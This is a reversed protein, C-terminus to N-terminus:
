FGQTYLIRFNANFDTGGKATLHMAVYLPVHPDTTWASGGGNDTPIRWLEKLSDGTADKPFVETFSTRNTLSLAATLDSGAMGAAQGAYSGSPPFRRMDLKLSTTNVATSVMAISLIISDSPLECLYWSDGNTVASVDVSVKPLVCRVAGGAQTLNAFGRPVKQNGGRYVFSEALDSLFIAM